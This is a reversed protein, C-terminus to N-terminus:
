VFRGDFIVGVGWVSVCICARVCLCLLSLSLSVSLCLCLSPSLSLSLCLCLSVSLPPSLCVSFSLSLSLCLSFLSPSLSFLSPSLCLSLCLCLCVSLCVQPLSSVTPFTLLLLCLFPSDQATIRLLCLRLRVCLSLSITESPPVLSLFPASDKFNRADTSFVFSAIVLLPASLAHHPTCNSSTLCAPLLLALPCTASSQLLGTKYERRNDDKIALLSREYQNPQPPM